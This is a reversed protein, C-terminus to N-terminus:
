FIDGPSPPRRGARRKAKRKQPQQRKVAKRKLPKPPGILRVHSAKRKVGRQRKLYMLGSGEQPGLPTVKNLVAESVHGVVDKAINRAATKVHPKILEFRRRLLPVAKRFLSRFIGGVGAGYMVPAGHYGPLAYGAQNKYYNRYLDPDGYSKLIVM